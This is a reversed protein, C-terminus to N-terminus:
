RYECLFSYVGADRADLGRAALGGRLAALGARADDERLFELLLAAEIREDDVGRLSQEATRIASDTGSLGGDASLWGQSGLPSGAVGVLEHLTTGSVSNDFRAAVVFGGVLRADNHFARECVTRSMNRWNRMVRQTEPTPNQLRARYEPSECADPSDLEYWTFYRPGHNDLREYRRGFRWGPLNVREPLHQGVYWSEYLDAVADDRDNWVALIGVASGEASKGTGTGRGVAVTKDSDSTLQGIDTRCALKAVSTRWWQGDRPPM